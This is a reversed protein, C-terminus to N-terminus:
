KRAAITFEHVMGHAVHEKGDKADPVFCFWAYNGPELDLDIQIEGGNAIPTVGGIPKAPPPGEQKVLWAMLDQATKGPALQAVFAEHPQAAQNRFLIRQKGATLPNSAGFAYDTLTITVDAKPLAGVENSAPVMSPAVILERVMGKMMHPMGDKAPIVCTIVYRGATLSLTANSEGGPVPTNPGGALKMWSPPPGGAKLANMFDAMTKGEDLKMLFVHHLDPGQNVLRITTIGAPITDPADFAYDRATVTVVRPSWAGEFVPTASLTPTPVLAVSAVIGAVAALGSATAIMRKTPM